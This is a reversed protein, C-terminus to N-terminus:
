QVTRLTWFDSSLSSDLLYAYPMYFHGKDGWDASWSNRCIWWQKSDDYGVAVVAHGGLVNESQSPMTMVGTTTTKNSEFSEYVTFGLIFPYGSALCGKFQMLNRTVRQYILAKHKLADKYCQSAPKSTYQSINYPWSDETCVGQKAISKMGDRLYAGSDYNVSGEIVRENYYIFLRSPVFPKEQEKIQCFEHAGAIANSTCSGLQGQDYVPPSVERLDISPPLTGLERLPAAYHFDRFDPLSPVWGMGKSSRVM